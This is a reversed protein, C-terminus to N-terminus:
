VVYFTSTSFCRSPRQGGLSNMLDEGLHMLLMHASRHFVPSERWTPPDFLVFLHPEQLDWFDNMAM